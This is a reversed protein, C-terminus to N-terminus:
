TGDIQLRARAGDNIYSNTGSSIYAGSQAVLRSTVSNVLIRDTVGDNYTFENNAVSLIDGGDPSILTTNIANAVIRARVDDMVEYRDDYTASWWVDNASAMITKDSNSMFRDVGDNIEFSNIGFKIYIPTEGVGRIRTQTGDVEFRKEGNSNIYILSTNDITLNSLTDPSVIRDVPLDSSTLVIEGNAYVGANTVLLVKNGDPSFLGSGVNDIIFRQSSNYNFILNTNTLTFNKLTDPSYLTDEKHNLLSYLGDHDGWGYATDWNSDIDNVTAIEVGDAFVGSGNLLLTHIGSPGISMSGFQNIELRNRTGDNYVYRNDDLLTYDGDPSFFKSHVATIDFRDRTGDYYILDSNSVTLNRLGNPSVIGEVDPFNGVTIIESGDYFAGTNDVVLNHNKTPSQMYVYGEDVGLREDGVTFNVTVNLNGDVLLDGGDYGGGSGIEVDNYYAGSNNIKIEQSGDPSTEVNSVSNVDIRNRSGDWINFQTDSVRAYFTGDMSLIKTESDDAKFRNIDNLTIKIASNRIDIGGTRGPNMVETYINDIWVRNKSDYKLAVSAGKIEVKNTGDNSRLYSTGANINLRIYDNFLIQTYSDHAKIINLDNPSIIKTVLTNSVFRDTTGDNYILTTNTITLNKLKDPSIIKDSNLGTLLNGDGIFYNATINRGAWISGEVELDSVDSSNCALTTCLTFNEDVPSNSKGIRLSRDFTTARGEEGFNVVMPPRQTVKDWMLWEMGYPNGKTDVEFIISHNFVGSVNRWIKNGEAHYISYTKIDNNDFFQVGERLKLPSAGDTFGLTKTNTTFVLENASKNFFMITSTTNRIRFNDGNQDIIYDGLYISSDRVELDWISLNGVYYGSGMFQIDEYYTSMASVSGILLIM